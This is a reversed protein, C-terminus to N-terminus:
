YRVGLVTGFPLEWALTQALPIGALHALIARLSGAHAVLAIHTHPLRALDQLLAEARAMLASAPEGGPPAYGMLDASWADLEHRAISDWALGEWAGFNMEILREDLHLEAGQARALYEALAATRTLPSSLILDAGAMWGLTRAAEQAFDAAVGVDLRGYCTGAAIAPKTHRILTLARPM